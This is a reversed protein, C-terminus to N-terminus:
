PTSEPIEIQRDSSAGTSETKNLAEESGLESSADETPRHMAAHSLCDLYNQCPELAMLICAPVNLSDAIQIMATCTIGKHLNAREIQSIYSGSVHSREALQEQTMHQLMRFRYVNDGIIRYSKELLTQM